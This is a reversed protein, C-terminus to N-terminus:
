EKRYRRTEFGAASLPLGIAWGPNTSMLGALVEVTYGGHDPVECVLEDHVRLVVPYDHEEARRMGTMFVDRAIAQVANETLKGGYTSLTQWKRTYQNVGSYTIQGEGLRGRGECIDCRVWVGQEIDHILGEGDCAPCPGGDIKPDVYCLFRGSPLRMRLWDRRFHDTRVDFRLLGDRVDYLTGPNRIAQKAAAEIDYWLAKTRPHQARWAWVIEQIADDTMAEVREGGMARFAGLAGQYGCNHVVFAGGDTLVTFRNRPGANAIDYVPRLSKSVRKCTAPGGHTTGTRGGALLGCIARSTAVISTLGTWKLSQRTGAMLRFLTHLFCAATKEGRSMFAYGALATTTIRAMTQTTAGTSPPQYGTASGGDIRMTQASQQTASINKSGSVLLNRLAAMVDRLLAKASIAPKSATLNQAAPAASWLEGYAAWRGSSWASWPLSELGTALAQALTNPCSAVTQASLWTQGVLIKHDPTAELGEVWITSRSGRDILGGHAVWEEGDWLLDATTVKTIAKVGNSTLVQSDPGLCALEPVKGQSQREEKTVDAPDKGLIKGATVKYLDHGDGRDYAKFAEIKWQEGALWALVRGEINSLDAIVLKRGPAAIVSGRVAMSCRESVNDWILDDADAKFARVTVDQVEEDFWDPTRPLNQPQFIRGADRATRAAGSFQITGRLRGDSSVADILAKYKAPSTASAQQRVELLERVTPDLDGRLASDLSAKTLDPLDLNATDRLYALMRDRQTASKVAGGTLREIRTALTGVARDFARIASRALDVDVAIGRDNINQDHRWLERESPTDNWRPLRGLVDRMADVDLAAYEIFEQWEDPHTESTARRIKMNKPQPKTFRNILRKGRKDKAKDQPVGLAECLHGLSGPLGHLLALVMTDVIKDVPVDVGLHWLVTRDFASNHIFVRSASDIMNQLAERWHPVRETEWVTVPEDDRAWAVLLVEADEAYRHAGAKISIECFTELDLFLISM